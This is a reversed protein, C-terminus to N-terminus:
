VLDCGMCGYGGDGMGCVGGESDYRVWGNGIERGMNRGELARGKASWAKGM